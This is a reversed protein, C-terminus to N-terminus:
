TAAERLRATLEINFEGTGVAIVNASGDLAEWEYDWRGESAAAAPTYVVMYYDGTSNRVIETDTLYVFEEWETTPGSYRAKLSAPDALTGSGNRITMPLKVATGAPYSKM